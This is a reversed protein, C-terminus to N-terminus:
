PRVGAEGEQVAQVAGAQHREEPRRLAEQLGVGPHQGVGLHSQLHWHHGAQATSPTEQTQTEAEKDDPQPLPLCSWSLSM